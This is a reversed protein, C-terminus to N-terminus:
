KDLLQLMQAAYREGMRIQSGSDFHSGDTTSTGESSAVGTNKIFYPLKLIMKNFPIRREDDESLQGAVFPLAPNGFEERFANVLIELRGLYMEIRLSDCDGEGQHWIVGQLTGSRMASRTQKVAAEYYTTGPLWQVIRTGGRANVVLGIEKDPQSFAMTKAFAYAPSLRQMEINKRIPSYRNLPNTAITWSSAADGTFLYRHEIPAKDQEIM